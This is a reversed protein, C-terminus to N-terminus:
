SAPVPEIRDGDHLFAGAKAVIRDGAQLGQVEVRDGERIGPTVAAEEVLGDVVRMVYAEGGERRLATTPVSLTEREETRIDAQAFLGPRLRAPDAVAIRVRGLRTTEDVQPEVLRVTGNLTSGDTLRLTAPQGPALHLLDSEAVDARLELASDRSLTFMPEGAGSAIAGITANRTLIQGAVPARVETRSLQLDLDALQAEAVQVEARAAESQARAATVRAEATALAARAQDLAAQSTANQAALQEIREADARAEVAAAEAETLGAEAQAAAAESQARQAELRARNLELTAESLRALVEGEEVRDGVEAEVTQVPQGDILPQVEVTEVPTVLGSAIVHETLREQRVETVTIAPLAVTQAQVAVPLLMLLLVRLM